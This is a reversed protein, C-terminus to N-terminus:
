EWPTKAYGDVSVGTDANSESGGSNATAEDYEETLDEVLERKDAITSADEDLNEMVEDADEGFRDTHEAIYGADAEMKPYQLEDIETKLTENQERLMSATDALEEISDLELEDVAKQAAEATDAAEELEALREEVGDNQASVKALAAEASLDDFEIEMNFTDTEDTESENSCGCDGVGNMAHKRAGCISYQKASSVIADTEIGDETPLDCGKADGAREIREALTSQSISIDGTGRLNWADSIDECNGVPFKADDPWETSEDPHEDPGVAFWRGDAVHIGMPADTQEAMVTTLGGGDADDNKDTISTDSKFSDMDVVSIHGHSTESPQVTSDRTPSDGDIDIGCGAESPCRGVEVSAVHNFLMDTQFGDLEIGDADDTGGIVGDYAEAKTIQNYFGVSVDGNEEIFEMAARDNTPVFLDADLNDAEEVYNPNSWFGKVDTVDKVMGTEPHEMTWPSNDLSWAAKQLEERPKKLWVTDEGYQYPQPIPRAVTAPLKYFENTDFATEHPPTNIQVREVTQWDISAGDEDITIGDADDKFVSVSADRTFHQNTYLETDM